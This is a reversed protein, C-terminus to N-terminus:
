YQVGLGGCMLGGTVAQLAEKGQAALTDAM